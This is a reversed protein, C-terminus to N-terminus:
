EETMPILARNERVIIRLTVAFVNENKDSNIYAVTVPPITTMEIFYDNILGTSKNDTTVNKTEVNSFDTTYKRRFHDFEKEVSNKGNNVHNTYIIIQYQLITDKTVVPRFLEIETEALRVEVRVPDLNFSNYKKYTGRFFFLTSDTRKIVQKNMLLTDNILHTLFSKFERNFPNYRFYNDAIKLISRQAACYSGTCCMIILVLLCLKFKM